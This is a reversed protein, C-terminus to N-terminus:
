RLHRLFGDGTGNTDGPVFESSSSYFSLLRGNRSFTSASAYGETLPGGALTRTVLETRGTRLEQVHVNEIVPEDGLPTRTSYALRRGDPSLLGYALGGEGHHTVWRTKGTRTDYLYLEWTYQPAGPVTSEDFSAYALLTGDASLSAGLPSGNTPSGDSAANVLKQEGSRLDVLWLEHRGGRPHRQVYTLHSGDASLDISFVYWDSPIHDSVRRVTGTRRDVVYGLVQNNAAGEMQRSSADFAFYRGDASMDFNDYTQATGGDPAASVRETRGTRRDHVYVDNVYQDPAPWEDLNKASSMFAVYRGDASIQARSSGGGVAQTGDSAVNVREVTGRRLDRVFVDRAGNTDGPVVEPDDSVFAVYRGDASLIPGGTGKEIQKGTASLTIRETGPPPAASATAASLTILGAALAATLATRHTRTRM